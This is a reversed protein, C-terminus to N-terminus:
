PLARGMLRTWLAMPEAVRVTYVMSPLARSCSM